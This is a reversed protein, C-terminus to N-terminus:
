THLSQASVRRDDAAHASSFRNVLTGLLRARGSMAHITRALHARGVPTLSYVRRAPGRESLGWASGVLGHAELARLTRYLGGGDVEEMGLGALRTLLDYGHGERESLLLLMATPLEGTPHRRKAAEGPRRKDAAM